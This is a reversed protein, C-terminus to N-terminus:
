LIIKAILMIFTCFSNSKGSDSACYLVLCDRWLSWHDVLKKFYKCVTRVSFKDAASLYGFVHTWVESPLQAAQVM